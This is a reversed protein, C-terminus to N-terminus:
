YHELTTQIKGKASSIVLVIITFIYPLMLLFQYPILVGLVQLQTQLATLGGFFLTAALAKYPSWGSFIVIALALWGRGAIMGETFVKVEALALYAGGIGAMAGGLIVCLYRIHSINIGLVTAANPNQGTARIKLGFTTHFLVVSFLPVLALALYILINNQFLIQGLIPIQELLPINISKFGELSPHAGGFALRFFHTSLGLGLMWIAIGAIVQNARFKITAIGFILSILAGTILAILVGLWLVNTVYAAWFGAFAGMLMIGEIGINFLGSRQVFIEGLAAFLIPVAMSITLSFLFTIEM